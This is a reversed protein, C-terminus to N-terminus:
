KRSRRSKTKRHNRKRRTRKRRGGQRANPLLYDKVIKCLYKFETDYGSERTLTIVFEKDKFGVHKVKINTKHYDREVDFEMTNPNKDNKVRVPKTAFYHGHPYKVIYIWLKICFTSEITMLNYSFMNLEKARADSVRIVAIDDSTNSIYSNYITVPAGSLKGSKANYPSNEPSNEFSAAM